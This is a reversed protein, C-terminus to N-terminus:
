MPAPVKFGKRAQRSVGAIGMKSYVQGAQPAAKSVRIRRLDSWASTSHGPQPEPRTFRCSERGAAVREPRPPEVRPPGGGPQPGM